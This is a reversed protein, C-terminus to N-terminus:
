RLMICVVAGSGIWGEERRWSSQQSEEKV